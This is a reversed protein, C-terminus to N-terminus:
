PVCMCFQIVNYPWTVSKCKATEIQNRQPRNPKCIFKVPFYPTEGEGIRSLLRLLNCICVFLKASFIQRLNCRITTKM